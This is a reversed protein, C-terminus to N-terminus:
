FHSLQKRLPDASQVRLQQKELPHNWGSQEASAYHWSEMPPFALSARDGLFFYCNEAAHSYDANEFLTSEYSWPSPTADSLIISGLIGESFRCSITATDEVAHGRAGSSTLACIQEIEGCIFRLNDIDHIINILIPGGGPQTRWQADYYDDPKQLTWLVSVAVLNGLDGSRIM